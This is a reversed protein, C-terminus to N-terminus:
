DDPLKKGCVPCYKIKIRTFDMGCEWINCAYLISGNELNYANCVCQEKEKVIM